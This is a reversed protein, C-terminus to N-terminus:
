DAAEEQLRSEGLRDFLRQPLAEVALTEPRQPGRAASGSEWLVYDTMSDSHGLASFLRPLSPQHDGYALLVGAGPTTRLAQTMVPFFADTRRLGGLYRRLAAAEPLAQLSAPLQLGDEPGRDALWPGHNGVSIVFLFLDPGFDALVEAAKRALAADNVFAESRAAPSFAEPGIFQEFGLAPIARNRGYFRTDFPHLCITRYGLGRMRWALSDVRARAFREYPNFRDLGLAESDLGTLAAFETRITNAGWTPVALPGWASAQSRCHDYGPMLDRPIAEHLRRPDFFSELQALVVPGPRRAPPTRLVAAATRRAPREARALTAHIVFCALMGWRAVDQEPQRSPALGEYLRQLRVLLPPWGPLYLAAVVLLAAALPPWPSWTWLPPVVWAVAGAATVAIVAATIVLGTGAFPLYFEPHRVVELLEARDAFVVPEQLVERKVADAGALGGTLAAVVLAGFLPRATLSAFLLAGIPLPAVDLALVWVPRVLRAGAYWRLFVACLLLLLATTALQLIMM